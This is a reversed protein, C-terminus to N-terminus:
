LCIKMEVNVGVIILIKYFITIAFYHSFLCTTSTSRLLMKIFPFICPFSLLKKYKCLIVNRIPFVLVKIGITGLFYM